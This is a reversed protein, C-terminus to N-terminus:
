SDSCLIECDMGMNVFAVHDHLQLIKCFPAKWDDFCHQSGFLYESGFLLQINALEYSCIGGMCLAASTSSQSYNCLIEFFLSVNLMFVFVTSTVTPLGINLDSDTRLAPVM